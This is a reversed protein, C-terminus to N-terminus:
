RGTVRETKCIGLQLEHKKLYPTWLSLGLLNAPSQLIENDFTIWLDGSFAPCRLRGTHRMLFLM